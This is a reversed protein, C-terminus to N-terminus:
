IADALSHNAITMVGLVVTALWQVVMMPLIALAATSSDSTFIVAFTVASSVVIILVGITVLPKGRGTRNTWVTLVGLVLAPAVMVLTLLLTGPIDQRYPPELWHLVQWATMVVMPVVPLALLVMMSAVWRKPSEFSM